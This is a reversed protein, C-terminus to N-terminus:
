PVTALMVFFCSWLPVRGNGSIMKYVYAMLPGSPNCDRIASAYQDNELGMDLNKFRYKQAMRPSPLIMELLCTAPLWKQMVRNVFEEGVLELDDNELTFGLESQLQITDGKMCLDTVQKIPDFCFWVFGRKCSPAKTPAKTWKTTM